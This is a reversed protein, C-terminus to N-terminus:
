TMIKGYFSSSKPGLYAFYTNREENKKEFFNRFGRRRDRRSKNPYGVCLSVYLVFMCVCM